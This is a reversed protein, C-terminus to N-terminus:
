VKRSPASGYKPLGGDSEISRQAKWTSQPVGPFEVNVLKWDKVGATPPSASKLQVTQPKKTCFQRLWGPVACPSSLPQLVAVEAVVLGEDAGPRDVHDRRGVV